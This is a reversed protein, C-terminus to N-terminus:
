YGYLAARLKNVQKSIISNIQKYECQMRVKQNISVIRDNLTENENLPFISPYIHLTNKDGLRITNDQYVYLTIRRPLHETTKERVYYLLAVMNIQLAPQTLDGRKMDKNVIVHDIEYEYKRNININTGYRYEYLVDRLCPLFVNCCYSILDNSIYRTILDISRGNISLRYINHTYKSSNGNISAYYMRKRIIGMRISCYHGTPVFGFSTVYELFIPNEKSYTIYPIPIGNEIHYQNLRYFLPLSYLQSLIADILQKTHQNCIITHYVIMIINSLSCRYVTAEPLSINIFMTCKDLTNMYINEVFQMYDDGEYHIIQFYNFTPSPYQSMYFEKKNSTFIINYVVDELVSEHFADDVFVRMGNICYAWNIRDRDILLPQYPCIDIERRGNEKFYNM